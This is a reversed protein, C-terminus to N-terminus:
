NNAGQYWYLIEYPTSTRDVVAETTLTLGDGRARDATASSRITYVNSRVTISDVIKKFTDVSVGEFQLIDAISEMGYLQEERYGVIQEALQMGADGGGLLAALVIESATNINVKGDTKQSNSVTIKDAISCFTQIDIPQAQNPNGGQSPEKPSNNNILNAISSHSRNDVIWKAQSSSIGLSDQLQSQSASNINIKQSGEADTNNDYSYCSLYDIWGLDLEGDEDDVPPSLDGDNENYDMQGNFNTDEGYFLQETVGKVLLLERLTRFPGNRIKYPYALTEYYGGEVGLGSVTDDTDRWDIIADVIEELMDPLQLLQEKTAINMNLKSAEDIVRVSFHCGELLVDNLDAANDSWLDTLSDSERTDEYLIGAAKELGARGAWRCRLEETGVARVKLDLRSNRAAVAVIAVLLVKLWLVAVLVLANKSGFTKM